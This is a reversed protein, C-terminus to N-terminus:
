SERFNKRNFYSIKKLLHNYSRDTCSGINELSM